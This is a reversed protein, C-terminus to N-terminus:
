KLFNKKEAAYVIELFLIHGNKRQLKLNIYMNLKMLKLSILILYREIKCRQAKAALIIGRKMINAPPGKPEPFCHYAIM